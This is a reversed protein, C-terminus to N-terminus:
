NCGGPCFVPCPVITIIYPSAALHHLLGHERCAGDCRMMYSHSGGAGCWGIAVDDAYLQFALKNNRTVYAREIAAQEIAM